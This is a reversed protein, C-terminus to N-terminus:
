GVRAEADAMDNKNTKVYPKVFQPSMLKITHGFKSLERAWYHAGGCAEMGILCPQLHVFFSLMEHRRIQKRVLTKGQSHVGHIQFVDKAIDIGITTIKM